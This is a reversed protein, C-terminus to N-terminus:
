KAASRPNIESPLAALCEVLRMRLAYKDAASSATECFVVPICDPPNWLGQGAMGPLAIYGAKEATKVINQAREWGYPESLYVKLAGFSIVATHDLGKIGCLKVHETHTIRRGLGAGLARKWAAVRREYSRGFEMVRATVPHIAESM